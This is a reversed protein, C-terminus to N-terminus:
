VNDNKEYAYRGTVYEREFCTNVQTVDSNVDAHADRKGPSVNESLLSFERHDVPIKDSCVEACEENPKISEILEEDKSEPIECTKIAREFVDNLINKVTNIDRSGNLDQQFWFSVDFVWAIGDVNSYASTLLDIVIYM